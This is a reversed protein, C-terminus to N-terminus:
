PALDPFEDVGRVVRILKVLAVVWHYVWLIEFFVVACSVDEFVYIMLCGFFSALAFLAILVSMFLLSPFGFRFALWVWGAIVPVALLNIIM